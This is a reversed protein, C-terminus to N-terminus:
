SISCFSNKPKDNAADIPNEPKFLSMPIPDCVIKIPKEDLDKKSFLFAHRPNPAEVLLYIGTHNGNKTALHIFLEDNFDRTKHPNKTLNAVIDIGKFFVNLDTVEIITPKTLYFTASEEAIRQRQRQAVTAGIRSFDVTTELNVEIKFISRLGFCDELNLLANFIGPNVAHKSEIHYNDAPIHLHIIDNSAKTITFGKKQVTNGEPLKKILNKLARSLTFDQVDWYSLNELIFPTTWLETQTISSTFSIAGQMETISISDSRNLFPSLTPCNKIMAELFKEKDHVGINFKFKLTHDDSKTLIDEWNIDDILENLNELTISSIKLQSITQARQQKNLGAYAILFQIIHLPSRTFHDQLIAQDAADFKSQADYLATFIRNQKLASLNSIKM